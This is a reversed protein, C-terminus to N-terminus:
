KVTFSEGCGCEGTINPNQYVFVQNIGQKQYDITTGKIKDLASKPVILRIGKDECVLEDDDIHHALSVEYGWGSCGTKKIGVRFGKAAQDQQLFEAIREAAAQTLHLFQNEALTEM